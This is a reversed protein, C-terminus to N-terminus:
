TRCIRCNVLQDFFCHWQHYQILQCVHISIYLCFFCIIRAHLGLPAAGSPKCWRVQTWIYLCYSKLYHSHSVCYKSTLRTLWQKCWRVWTGHHLGLPAAGSPKCWMTVLTKQKMLKHQRVHTRCVHVEIQYVHSEKFYWRVHTRCVHVDIQYVHSEKFIDDFTPEVSTSMLRISAHSKPFFWPVHTRCVHVDIQHVYSEKSVIMSRPNSLRPGWAVDVKFYDEFKPEVSRPKPSDKFLQVQIQCVQQACHNVSKQQSISIYDFVAHSSFSLPHWFTMLLQMCIRCFSSLIDDCISRMDTPSERKKGCFCVGLALKLPEM